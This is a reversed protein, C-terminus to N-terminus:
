HTVSLPTGLPGSQRTINVSDQKVRSLARDHEIRKIAKQIDLRGGVEHGLGVGAAGGGLLITWFAFRARGHNGTLNAPDAPAMRDQVASGILFGAALGLLGSNVKLKDKLNTKRNVRIEENSILKRQSDLTGAVKLSHITEWPITTGFQAVQVPNNAIRQKPTRIVIVKQDLYVM